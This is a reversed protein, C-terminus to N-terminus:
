RSAPDTPAAPSEGPRPPTRAMLEDYPVTLLHRLNERYLANEPALRLAEKQAALAPHLQGTIVALNATYQHVLPSGVHENRRTAAALVARAEDYRGDRIAREAEACLAAV